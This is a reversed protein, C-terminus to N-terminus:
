QMMESALVFESVAVPAGLAYAYESTFICGCNPCSKYYIKNNSSGVKYVEFANTCSGPSQAVAVMAQIGCGLSKVAPITCQDDSFLPGQVGKAQETAIEPLCRLGDTGKRFVCPQMLKNDYWGTFEKSGDDGLLFRARLRSGSIYGAQGTMEPGSGTSPGSGSSAGSGSTSSTSSAGGAGATTTTGNGSSAPDPGISETRKSCAAAALLLAAWGLQKIRMM